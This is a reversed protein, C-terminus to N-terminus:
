IKKKPTIFIDKSYWYYKTWKRWWETRRHWYKELQLKIRKDFLFEWGNLQNFQPIAVETLVLQDVIKGIQLVSWIANRMQNQFTSLKMSKYTEHPAPRNNKASAHFLFKNVYKEINKNLIANKEIKKVISEKLLDNRERKKPNNIGSLRDFIDHRMKLTQVSIIDSGKNREYPTGDYTVYNERTFLFLNNKIMKIITPISNVNHKKNKKINLLNM